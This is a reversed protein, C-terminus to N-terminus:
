IYEVTRCGIIGSGRTGIYLTRIDIDRQNNDDSQQEGVSGLYNYYVITIM